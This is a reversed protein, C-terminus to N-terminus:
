SGEMERERKCERTRIRKMKELKKAGDGGEEREM